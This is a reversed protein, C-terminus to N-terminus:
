YALEIQVPRALLYSIFKSFDVMAICQLKGRYTGVILNNVWCHDVLLLAQHM